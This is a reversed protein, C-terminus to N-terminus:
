ETRTRDKKLDDLIPELAMNIQENKHAINKIMNAIARFKKNFTETMQNNSVVQANLKNARDFETSMTKRM